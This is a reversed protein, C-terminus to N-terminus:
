THRGRTCRYADVVGGLRHPRGTFEDCARSCGGVWGKKRKEKDPLVVLSSGTPIVRTGTPGWWRRSRHCMVPRPPPRPPPPSLPPMPPLPPVCGDESDEFGQEDVEDEEEEAEEERVM